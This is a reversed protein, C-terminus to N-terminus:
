RFELHFLPLIDQPINVMICLTMHYASGTPDPIYAIRTDNRTLGNRELFEEKGTDALNEWLASCFQHVNYNKQDRTSFLGRHLITWGKMEIDYPTPLKDIWIDTPTLM